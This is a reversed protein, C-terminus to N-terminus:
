ESIVEAIKVTGGLRSIDVETNLLFVAIKEKYYELKYKIGFNKFYSILEAYSLGPNRGLVFIYKKM